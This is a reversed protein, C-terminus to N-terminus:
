NTLPIDWEQCNPHPRILRITMPYSKMTLMPLHEKSLYLCIRTSKSNYDITFDVGRNDVEGVNGYISTSGTGIFAPTSNSRSLYIKERREKFVDLSINVDHFLSM